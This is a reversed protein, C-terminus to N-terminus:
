ENSVGEEKSHLITSAEQVIKTNEAHKLAVYNKIGQPLADNNEYVSTLVDMIEANQAIEKDMLSIVISFLKDIKADLEVNSSVVETFEKSIHEMDSKILDSVYKIDEQMTASKERIEDYGDVMENLGNIIASQKQETVDSKSLVKAINDIIKTAVAGLDKKLIISLVLLVGSGLLTFVDTKNGIFAEYLRTFVDVDVTEDPMIVESSSPTEGEETPESAYAVVPLALSLTIVLTLLIYINKKM